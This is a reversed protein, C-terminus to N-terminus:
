SLGGNPPPRNFLGRWGPSRMQQNELKLADVFEKRSMRGKSIRLEFFSQLLDDVCDVHFQEKLFLLKTAANIENHSLETKVQVDIKSFLEKSVTRINSENEQGSSISEELLGANERAQVGM